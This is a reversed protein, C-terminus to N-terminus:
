FEINIVTDEELTNILKSELAAVYRKVDEPTELQWTSEVTVSKISITKQKKIKPKPSPQPQAESGGVPPM